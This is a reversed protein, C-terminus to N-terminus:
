AITAWSIFLILSVFDKLIPLLNYIFDSPAEFTKFSFIATGTSGDRLVSIKGDLM